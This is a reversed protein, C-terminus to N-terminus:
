SIGLRSYILLTSYHSSIPDTRCHHLLRTLDLNYAYYLTYAASSVCAAHTSLLDGNSNETQRERQTYRPPTVQVETPDSLLIVATADLCPVFNKKNETAQCTPQLRLTTTPPKDPSATLVKVCFPM